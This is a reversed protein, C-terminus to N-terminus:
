KSKQYFTRSCTERCCKTYSKEFFMNRMNCEIIYGFKMTKNGKSRSINPLIHITNVQKRTQSAMFTSILGKRGLAGKSAGIVKPKIINQPSVFSFM